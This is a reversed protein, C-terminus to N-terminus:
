VFFSVLGMSYLGEQYASLEEALGLFEGSKISGPLKSGCKCCGTGIRRWVLGTWTGDWLDM